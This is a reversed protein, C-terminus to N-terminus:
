PLQEYESLKVRSNLKVNYALDVFDVMLVIVFGAFFVMSSARFGYADVLFGAITPGLFSGLYLSSTWM